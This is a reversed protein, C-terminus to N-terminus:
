KDKHFKHNPIPYPHNTPYINNEFTHKSKKEKKTPPYKRLQKREWDGHDNYLFRRM